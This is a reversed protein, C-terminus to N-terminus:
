IEKIMDNNKINNVSAPIEDPSDDEQSIFIMSLSVFVLTQIFAGFLDFYMHLFPALIPTVLLSSPGTPIFGGYIVNALLGSGWYLLNMITWGALANGFLRLSLSILPAFTSIINIPLFFFVPEVFRKFYRWKNARVATAHVLIITLTGLSVPVILNVMPTPLGLLGLTFGLVIYVAIATFYGGMGRRLFKKGMMSEVMGDIKTVLIESLHVIGKPKALPDTKKVKFFVILSLILVIILVIISGYIESPLDHLLKNIWQSM